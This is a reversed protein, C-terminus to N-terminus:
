GFIQNNEIREELDKMIFTAAEWDHSSPEKNVSDFIWDWMSADVFFDSYTPHFAEPYINVQYDKLAMLESIFKSFDKNKYADIINVIFESVKIRDEKSLERFDSGELAHQTLIEAAEKFLSEISM